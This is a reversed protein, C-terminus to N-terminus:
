RHEDVLVLLITPLNMLPNTSTKKHGVVCPPARQQSETYALRGYAFPSAIAAQKQVHLQRRM